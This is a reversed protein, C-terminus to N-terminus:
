EGQESSLEPLELGFVRRTLVAPDVPASVHAQLQVWLGASDDRREFVYSGRLPISVVEDNVVTRAELTAVVWAYRRNRAVGVFADELVIAGEAGFVQELSPASAIAAGQHEELPGPWLILAEPDAIQKRERYGPLDDVIGELSRFVLREVQADRGFNREVRAAGRMRGQMAWDVADPVPLPYSVHQAVLMWSDLFRQYVATLRLPISTERGEFPDALRCSVEDYIWGVSADDSVHIDLNRSLVRECPHIRFINASRRRKRGIYVDSPGLEVLAIPIEEAVHDGYAALNGLSLQSYAELVTAQLDRASDERTQEPDRDNVPKALRPPAVPPPPPCATLGASALVIAARFWEV